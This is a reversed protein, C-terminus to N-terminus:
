LRKYVMTLLISLDDKNANELKTNGLVEKIEKQSVYKSIIEQVSSNNYLPSYQPILKQLWDVFMDDSANYVHLNNMVRGAWGAYTNGLFEQMHTMAGYENLIQMTKDWQLMITGLESRYAKFNTSNSQQIGYKPIVALLDGNDNKRITIPKRNASLMKNGRVGLYHLFEKQFEKSVKDIKNLRQKFSEVKKNDEKTSIKKINKNSLTNLVKSIGVKTNLNVIDVKNSEKRKLNPIKFSKKKNKNDM